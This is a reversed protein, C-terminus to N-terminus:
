TLLAIDYAHDHVVYMPLLVFRVATVISMAVWSVDGSEEGRKMKRLCSSLKVGVVIVQLAAFLEGINSLSTTLWANFIGGNQANAFFAKHLPPTLGIIAGIIGGVMPANFFGAGFVISEQVWDPLDKWHRRGHIWASKRWKRGKRVMMSPLLSTRESATDNDAGDENQEVDQDDDDDDDNDQHEGDGKDDGNPAEEADLLTPGLAFTFVNGIISNVLFYSEARKVADSTSDSSSQLLVDLIGAASLSKVLILPFSTTNNFALGPTIWAPQKFYRVLIVGLLMSAFIYVMAWVTDYILTTAVM